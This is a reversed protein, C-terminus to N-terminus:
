APRAHRWEPCRWARGAACPAAAPHFMRIRRTSRNGGHRRRNGLRGFQTDVHPQPRRTKELRAAQRPLRDLRAADLDILRAALWGLTQVHAIAQAQTTGLFAQLYAYQGQRCSAPRGALRLLQIAFGIGTAGRPLGHAFLTSQASRREIVRRTAGVLLGPSLQPLDLVQASLSHCLLREARGHRPCPHGLQPLAAAAARHGPAFCARWHRSRTLSYPGTGSERYFFVVPLPKRGLCQSPIMVMRWAKSAGKARVKSTPRALGTWAASAGFCSAVECPSLSPLFFSSGIGGSRLTVVECLTRMSPRLI